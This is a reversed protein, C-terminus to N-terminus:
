QMLCGCCREDNICVCSCMGDNIEANDAFDLEVEALVEAETTTATAEVDEALMEEM